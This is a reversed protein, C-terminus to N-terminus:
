KIRYKGKYILIFYETNGGPNGARHKPLFTSWSKKWKPCVTMAERASFPQKLKGKKVANKICNFMLSM